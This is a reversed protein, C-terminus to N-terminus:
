RMRHLKLSISTNFASWLKSKQGWPDIKIMHQATSQRQQTWSETVGLVAARWAGGDM